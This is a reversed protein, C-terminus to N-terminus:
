IHNNEEVDLLILGRLLPCQKECNILIEGKWCLRPRRVIPEPAHIGFAPDWIRGSHQQWRFGLALEKWDWQLPSCISSNHTLSIGNKGVPEGCYFHFTWSKFFPEKAGLGSQINSLMTTKSQTGTEPKWVEIELNFIPTSKLWLSAAIHKAPPSSCIFIKSPVHAVYLHITM